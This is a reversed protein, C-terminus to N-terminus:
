IQMLYMQYMVIQKVPLLVVLNKLEALELNFDSSPVSSDVLEETFDDSNDIEINEFDDKM